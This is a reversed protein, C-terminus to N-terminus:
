TIPRDTPTSVPFPIIKAGETAASPPLAGGQSSAAPPTSPSKSDARSMAGKRTAGQQHGQGPPVKKPSSATDQQQNSKVFMTALGGGDLLRGAALGARVLHATKSDLEALGGLRDIAMSKKARIVVLMADDIHGAHLYARALVTYFDELVRRRARSGTRERYYEETAGVLGELQAIAADFNGLRWDIAARISRTMLGQPLLVWLYWVTREFAIPGRLVGLPGLVLAYVILIAAGLLDLLMIFLNAGRLGKLLVVRWLNIPLPLSDLWVM